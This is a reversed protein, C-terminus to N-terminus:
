DPLISRVLPEDSARNLGLWYFHMARRVDTDQSLLERTRSLADASVLGRGGEEISAILLLFLARREDRSLDTEAAAAVMADVRRPDALEFEWDQERGSAPLDLLANISRQAATTAGYFEVM